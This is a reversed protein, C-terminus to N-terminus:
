FIGAAVRRWDNTAVCYYFWNSDLFCQGPKGTSASNAPAADLITAGKVFQGFESLLRTELPTANQQPEFARPDFRLVTASLARGNLRRLQGSTPETETLGGPTTQHSFQKAGPTLGTFGSVDGPEILCTFYGASPDPDGESTYIYGPVGSVNAAIRGGDSSSVVKTWYRSSELAAWTEGSDASRLVNGNAVAVLLKTGNASMAVSRTNDDGSVSHIENITAGSDTSYYVKTYGCLMIKAGDASCSVDRWFEASARQTWTTGSDDSTYFYSTGSGEGTTAVMKTGDSSVAVATWSKLLGRQTWTAGSDVSVFIHGGPVISGSEYHLGEIAVMVTGDDSMAVACWYRLGAAPFAAWSTGHNLSCRLYGTREAAGSVGTSAALMKSGDPSIAISAFLEGGLNNETWSAGFDSSVILRDATGAAMYNGDGSMALSFRNRLQDRQIWTGGVEGESGSDATLAIGRVAGINPPSTSLDEPYWKTRGNGLRNMVDQWVVQRATIAAGADATIQGLSSGAADLAAQLGVVDSIPHTHALPAAPESALAALGHIVDGVRELTFITTEGAPALPAAGGGVWAITPWSVAWVPSPQTLLIQVSGGDPLNALSVTLDADLAHTFIDGLAYDAVGAALAVPPRVGGGNAAHWAKTVFDQNDVPDAGSVRGEHMTNGGLRRYGGAFREVKQSEATPEPPADLDDCEIVSGTGKPQIVAHLNPNAGVLRFTPSPTGAINDGLPDDELRVGIPAPGVHDFEVYAGANEAAVQAETTFGTYSNGPGEIETGGSHVVRFGFGASANLKFQTLGPGYRLAGEVYYVRYRGTPQTGFSAVDETLVDPVVPAAMEALGEANPTWKSAQGGGVIETSEDWYQLGAGAAGDAGVRVWLKPNNEADFDDPRIVGPADEAQTGNQLQYFSVEDQLVVAALTGVTQMDGATPIGDLNYDGGGTLGTLTSRNQVFRLDAHGKTYYEDLELPDVVQPEETLASNVVVIAQDAKYVEGLPGGSLEVEFTARLQEGATTLAANLEATSLSLSGEFFAGEANWTWNSSYALLTAGLRIAVRARYGTGDRATFPAEIGGDPNADLFVLRFRVREGRHFRRLAHVVANTLSQVFFGRGADARLYIYLPIM